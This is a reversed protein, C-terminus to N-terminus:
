IMQTFLLLLDKASFNPMDLQTARTSSKSVLTPLIHCIGHDLIHFVPACRFVPVDSYGLAAWFVRFVTNQVPSIGYYQANKAPKNEPSPPKM